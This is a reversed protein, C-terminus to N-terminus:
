LCTLIYKGCFERSKFICPLCKNPSLIFHHKASKVNFDSCKAQLEELTLVIATSLQETTDSEKLGWPTTWSAGRHM